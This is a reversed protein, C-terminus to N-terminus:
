CFMTLLPLVYLFLRFIGRYPNALYIIIYEYFLPNYSTKLVLPLATHVCLSIYVVVCNPSFLAIRRVDILSFPQMNERPVKQWWMPTLLSASYWWPTALKYLGQHSHHEMSNHLVFIGSKHTQIIEPIIQVFM